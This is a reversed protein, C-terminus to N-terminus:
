TQAAAQRELLYRRLSLPPHTRLARLSIPDGSNSYGENGLQKLLCNLQLRQTMSAAGATARGPCSAGARYDALLEQSWNLCTRSFVLALTCSFTSLIKMAPGPCHRLSAEWLHYAGVLSLCSWGSRVIQHHGRLHCCEHAITFDLQQPSPVLLERVSRAMGSDLKYSGVRLTSLVPDDAHKALATRPLGIVAGSELLTTGATRASLGPSIFVRIREAHAVGLNLAITQVRNRIHAPSAMVAQAERALDPAASLGWGDLALGGAAVVYM